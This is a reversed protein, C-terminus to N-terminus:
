AALEEDDPLHLRLQDRQAHQMALLRASEAVVCRRFSDLRRYWAARSIRLEEAARKINSVRHRYYLEFVIRGGDMPKATIAANLAMMQASCSADPTANLNDRRRQLKALLNISLTPPPGYFKRTIVWRAWDECLMHQARGTEAAPTDTNTSTDPM